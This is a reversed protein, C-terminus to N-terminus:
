KSSSFSNSDTYKRGYDASRTMTNTTDADLSPTTPSMPRKPSANKSVRRKPSTSHQSDSNHEPM